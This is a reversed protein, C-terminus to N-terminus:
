LTEVKGHRHPRAANIECKRTVALTIDVGLEDALQCVVSLGLELCTATDQGGVERGRRWAEFSKRLWGVVGWVRGEPTVSPHGHLHLFPNDVLQAPMSHLGGDAAGCASWSPWVADLVCVMRIAVDALEGSLEATGKANVLEDLESVVAMLKAPLNAWSPREFGHAEAISNARKALQHLEIGRNRNM